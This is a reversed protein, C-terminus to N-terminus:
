FRLWLWKLIPEIMTAALSFHASLTVRFVDILLVKWISLITLILLFNQIILKKHSILQLYFFLRYATCTCHPVFTCVYVWQMISYQIRYKQVSIGYLLSQPSTQPTTLLLICPPPSLHCCFLMHTSEVPM